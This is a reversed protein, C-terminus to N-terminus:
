VGNMMLSITKDTPQVTAIELLDGGQQDCGYRSPVCWTVRGIVYYNGPPVGEIAFNGQGDAKTRKLYPGLAPDPNIDNGLVNAGFIKVEMRLKGGKFGKAMLGESYSTRPMLIVESGAGYVVVGDNRRLFLQGKVTATGPRRAFEVEAANFAVAPQEATQTACGGLLLAGSILGAVIRM